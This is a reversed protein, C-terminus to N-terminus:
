YGAPGEERDGGENHGSIYKGLAKIAQQLANGVVDADEGEVGFGHLKDGEYALKMLNNYFHVIEQNVEEADENGTVPENHISSYAEALLEMSQKISRHQKM